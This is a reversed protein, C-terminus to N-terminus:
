NEYKSLFKELDDHIKTLSKQKNIGKLCNPNIEFNYVGDFGVDDLAKFVNEWKTKGQGPLRHYDHANDNDHLHVTKINSGLAYVMDTNHDKYNMNSHGSDYCFSFYEKEDLGNYIELMEEYRSCSTENYKGYGMWTGFMDEICINVNYEKAWGTLSNYFKINEDLRLARNQEGQWKHPMLPHVIIYKANLIGSGIFCMKLKSLKEDFEDGEAYIPYLAHTMWVTLDCEDFKKKLDTYYNITDLDNKIGFDNRGMFVNFQWDCYKFGARSIMEIQTKDDYKEVIWNQISLRM